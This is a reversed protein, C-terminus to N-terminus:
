ATTLQGLFEFFGRQLMASPFSKEEEKRLFGCILRIVDLLNRVVRVVM